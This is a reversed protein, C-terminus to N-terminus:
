SLRSVLNVAFSAFPRWELKVFALLSGDLPTKAALRALRGRHTRDSLGNPSKRINPTENETESECNSQLSNDMARQNRIAQIDRGRRLSKGILAFTAIHMCLFPVSIALAPGWLILYGRFSIEPVCIHGLDYQIFNLGIGLAAQVLPVGSCILVMALTEMPGSLVIKYRLACFLTTIRTASWLATSLAGYVLLGGQLACRWNTRATATTIADVCLTKELPGFLHFVEPMHFFMLSISMGLNYKTRVMTKPFALLMIVLAMMLFCSICSVYTVEMFVNEEQVLNNPICPLCCTKDFCMNRNKLYRELPALNDDFNVPVLPSSCNNMAMSFNM